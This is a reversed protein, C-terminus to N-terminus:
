DFVHCQTVGLISTAAVVEQRLIDKPLGKPVSDEAASFAYYYVESGSKVLKDIYGGAGFEGDDTHPALVVVRKFDKM